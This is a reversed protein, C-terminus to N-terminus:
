SGEAFKYIITRHLTQKSQIRYGLEELTRVDTGQTNDPSGSVELLWVTNIGDLRQTVLDLPWTTDWLHDRHRYPVKLAVDKLGTFDAPYLHLALRPRQSPRTTRDFVVADGQHAEAGIVAASQALDSGPGM